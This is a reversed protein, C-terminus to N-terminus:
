YKPVLKIIRCKKKKPKSKILKLIAIAVDKITDEFACVYGHDNSISYVVDDYSIERTIILNNIYIHQKDSDLADNVVKFKNIQIKNM